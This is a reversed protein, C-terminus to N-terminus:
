RAGRGHQPATAAAKKKGSRIILAMRELQELTPNDGCQRMASTLAGKVEIGFAGDLGRLMVRSLEDKRRADRQTRERAEDARLQAEREPTPCFAVALGRLERPLSQIRQVADPDLKM